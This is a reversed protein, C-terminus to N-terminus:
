VVFLTCGVLAAAALAQFVSAAVLFRFKIETGTRLTRIAEVKTNATINRAAVETVKWYPKELLSQLYHPAPVSSKWPVGAAVACSAALLLFLLAFALFTRAFGCLTFDKGVFVAFVALVITVLGTSGTLAGGARTNVAARRDYEAKLEADIFSAFEKGQDAWNTAMLSSKSLRFGGVAKTNSQTDSHPFHGRFQSSQHEERL